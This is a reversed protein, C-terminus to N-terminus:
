RGEADGYGRSTESENQRPIRTVHHAMADVCERDAPVHQLESQGGKGRQEQQGTHAQGPKQGLGSEDQDGRAAQDDARHGEGLTQGDAVDKPPDARHARDGPEQEDQQLLRCRQCM